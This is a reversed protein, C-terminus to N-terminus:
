LKQRRECIDGKMSSKDRITISFLNFGDRFMEKMSAILGDRNIEAHYIIETRRGATEYYALWNNDTKEKCTNFTKATYYM